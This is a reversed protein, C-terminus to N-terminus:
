TLARNHLGTQLHEQAEGASTRAKAAWPIISPHSKPLATRYRAEWRAYPPKQGELRAAINHFAYGTKSKANIAVPEGRVAAVTFDRSEPIIGVLPLGLLAAIHGTPITVGRAVLRPQVRNVILGPLPVAAEEILRRARDVSRISPLDPTTIVIAQQAVALAVHFGNDIGSQSDIVLYDYEKSLQGCLQRLPEAKVFGKSRGSSGILLSLGRTRPDRLIADELRCRGEAVDVLSHRAEGELGLLLDLGCLGFSLDILLISKGRMALVASLNAATTSKGVGGKGSTIVLSKGMM